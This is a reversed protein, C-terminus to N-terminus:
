RAPEPVPGRGAAADPSPAADLSPAAALPESPGTTSCQHLQYLHAYAPVSELLQAHSGAGIVRGHDLFLIEDADAVTVLNHSIILTTRGTM